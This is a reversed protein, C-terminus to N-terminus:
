LHWIKRQPSSEKLGARVSAVTYGKAANVGGDIVKIM